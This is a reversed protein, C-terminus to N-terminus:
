PPPSPTQSQSSMLLYTLKCLAATKLSDGTTKNFIINRIEPKENNIDIPVNDCHAGGKRSPPQIEQWIKLFPLSSLVEVKLPPQQFLHCFIFLFIKRPLEHFVLIFPRIAYFPPSLCNASKLPLPPSPSPLFSPPPQYGSACQTM